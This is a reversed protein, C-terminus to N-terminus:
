RSIHCLVKQGLSQGNDRTDPPHHAARAHLFTVFVGSDAGQRGRKTTFSRMFLITSDSSQLHIFCTSTPCLDASGRSRSRGPPQSRGRQCRRAPAARPRRGAAREGIRRRPWEGSASRSWARLAASPVCLPLGGRQEAASALWHDRMVHSTSRLRLGILDVTATYKRRTVDMDYLHLAAQLSPGHV